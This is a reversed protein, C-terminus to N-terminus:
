SVGHPMSYANMSNFNIYMGTNHLVNIFNGNNERLEPGFEKGTHFMIDRGLGEVM